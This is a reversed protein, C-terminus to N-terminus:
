TSADYLLSDPPKYASGHHVFRSIEETRVTSCFDTISNTVKGHIIAHLCADAPSEM